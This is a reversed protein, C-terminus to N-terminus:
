RWRAALIGCCQQLVPAVRAQLGLRQQQGEIPEPKHEVMKICHAWAEM